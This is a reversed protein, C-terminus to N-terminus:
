GGHGEYWLYPFREKAIDQFFKMRVGPAARLMHSPVDSENFHQHETQPGQVHFCTGKKWPVTEGDVISYGEGQLIYLIAEMHAHKGGHTGPTASPLCDAVVVAFFSPVQNTSSGARFVLKSGITKDAM